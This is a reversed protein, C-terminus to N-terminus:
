TQEKSDGRRGEAALLDKGLTLLLCNLNFLVGPPAPHTGFNFMLKVLDGYLKAKM